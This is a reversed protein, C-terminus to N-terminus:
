VRRPVRPPAAKLGRERGLNNRRDAHECVIVLAFRANSFCEIKRRLSAVTTRQFRRLAAMTAHPGKPSFHVRAAAGCSLTPARVDDVDNGDDSM